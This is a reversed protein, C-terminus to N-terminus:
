VAKAMARVVALVALRQDQRLSSFAHLLPRAEPAIGDEGCLAAVSTDLADACKMLTSASVRNVGREYKQVQQFSVGIADGLQAQTVRRSERTERLRSAISIDLPDPGDIM